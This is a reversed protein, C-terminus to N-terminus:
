NMYRALSQPSTRFSNAYCLGAFSRVEKKTVLPHGISSKEIKEPCASLGKHGEVLLSEHNVPRKAIVLRADVRATPVLKESSPGQLTVRYPASPLRKPMDRENLFSVAAGTVVILWISHKQLSILFHLHQGGIASCTNGAETPM